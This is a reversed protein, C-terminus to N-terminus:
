TPKDKEDAIADEKTKHITGDPHNPPTYVTYVKMGDDSAIVNHKSGAPVIFASGNKLEYEKSDIVVKGSGEDVRFFQDISDHVEEGIDENPQLAMLVLQMYKGTFLVKRFNENNVTDKEINTHFGKTKEKENLVENIHNLFNYLKEM